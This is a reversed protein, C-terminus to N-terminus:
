QSGYKGPVQEVIPASSKASPALAPISIKGTVPLGTRLSRDPFHGPRGNNKLLAEAGQVSGESRKLRPWRINRGLAISAGVNRDNGHTSRLAMNRAEGM